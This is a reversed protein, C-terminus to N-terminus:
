LWHEFKAKKKKAIDSVADKFGLGIAIAGGLGLALALAGVVLRFADELLVTADPMLRKIAGVVAVYVIFVRIAVCLASLFPVHKARRLNDVLYDSIILAPALLFVIVEVVKVYYDFTGKAMTLLADVGSLGAGFVLFALIVGLGLLVSALSTFTFGMLADHIGHTGLFKELKIQLLAKRLLYILARAIVYGVALTVLVIIANVVGFVLNSAVEVGVNSLQAAMVDYGVAM